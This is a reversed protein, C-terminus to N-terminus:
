AKSISSSACINHLFIDVILPISLRTNTFPMQVLLQSPDNSKSFFDKIIQSQSPKSIFSKLSKFIELRNFTKCVALDPIKVYEHTIGHYTMGLKNKIIRINKYILAESGQFIYYADNTLRNYLNDKSITPSIQLIM